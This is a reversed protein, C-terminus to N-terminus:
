VEEVNGLVLFKDTDQIRMIVLNDGANINKNLFILQNEELVIKQELRAKIPNECELKAFYIRALRMEGVTQEILQKLNKTLEKM